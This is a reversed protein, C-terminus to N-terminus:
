TGRLTAGGPLRVRFAVYPKQRRDKGLEGFGQYISPLLHFQTVTFYLYGDAAIILRSIFNIRPDHVFNRTYGTTVNYVEIGDNVSNGQYVNGQSDATIVASVGQQGLNRVASVIESPPTNNNRLLQTPVCYLFRIGGGSYYLTEMDPSLTVGSVGNKINGYGYIQGSPSYLVQYLPAGYIFPVFGPEIMVSVDNVLVRYSTGDFLNLVVIANQQEPSLDAIYAFQNVLDFTVDSFFSVPLAVNTPFTYTRITSNTNLDVSILKTGGPSSGLILGGYMCRGTDLIWLTDESDIVVTQVSLFYETYGFTVPLIGSTDVAGGPPSNMEENPYPTDTELGTLEVVAVVSNNGLNTNDGDFGAPYCSFMRGSSSVAIGSPWQGFYLHVIELEDSISLPDQVVPNSNNTCAVLAPLVGLFLTLITPGMKTPKLYWDVLYIVFAGVIWSRSLSVVSMEM